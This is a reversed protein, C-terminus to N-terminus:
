RYDGDREALYEMRMRIASLPLTSQTDPSWHATSLGGPAAELVQRYLSLAEGEQGARDYLVALDLRYALNGPELEIARALHDFAGRVDDHHALYRALAVQMQGSVPNGDALKQLEKLASKGDAHGLAMALGTSAATDAPDLALLRREADAAAEYSGSAQYIYAAGALAAANDPDEDLVQKYLALATENDSAAMASQARKLMREFSESPALPAPPRDFDSAGDDTLTIDFPAPLPAVVPVNDPLANALIEAAPVSMPPPPITADRAIPAIMQSVDVPTATPVRPTVPAPPPPPVPAPVVAVEVSAAPPAPPATMPKLIPSIVQATFNMGAALGDKPMNRILLGMMFGAAIMAATVTILLMREHSAKTPVFAIIRASSKPYIDNAALPPKRLTSLMPFALFPPITEM